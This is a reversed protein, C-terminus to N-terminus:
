ASPTKHSRQIAQVHSEYRGWRYSRDAPEEPRIRCIRSELEYLDFRQASSTYTEHEAHALLATHFEGFSRVEALMAPIPDDPDFCNPSCDIFAALAPAPTDYQHLSEATTNKTLSKRLPVPWAYLPPEGIAERETEGVEKGNNSEM